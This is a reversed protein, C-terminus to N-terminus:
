WDNAVAGIRGLKPENSDIVENPGIGARLLQVELRVLCAPPQVAVMIGVPVHFCAVREVHLRLQVEACAVDTRHTNDIRQAHGLPLRAQTYESILAPYGVRAVEM